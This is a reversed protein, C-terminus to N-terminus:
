SFKDYRINDPTLKAELLLMRIAADVAPPPGALYARVNDMKGLMHSRAVDHVLGKEFRLAPYKAAAGNPVDEDSLAVTIQLKNPFLNKFASLEQLKFADKMTRAGFFVNGDYQSFYHEQCACDLISLIGAIGSGGGICLLNKNISPYFTAKGLPGFLQVAVGTRDTSFLWDSVRGGPKKKIIFQVKWAQREFNVMSYGRFGPIAPVAMVMFQGADFNCPAHLEIEFAMVSDNLLQVGRIIGEFARPRQTRPNMPYVFDGIEIHLDTQALCQCMLFERLDPKLYKHAPADPWCNEIEGEVLRAKCTGCTGSACEYPLEIESGLGAFLVKNGTEAEFEYARNRAKVHVKMLESTAYSAEPAFIM